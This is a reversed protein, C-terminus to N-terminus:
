SLIILFSQSACSGKPMLTTSKGRFFCGTTDYKWM